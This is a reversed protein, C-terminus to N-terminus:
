RLYVLILVALTMGAGYVRWFMLKRRQQVIVERPNFPIPSVHLFHDNM